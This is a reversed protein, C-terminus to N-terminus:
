SVSEWHQILIGMIFRIQWLFKTVVERKFLQIQKRLIKNFIKGNQMETWTPRCNESIKNQKNKVGKPNQSLTESLQVPLRSKWLGPLCQVQPQETKVEWAAPINETRQLDKHSKLNLHHQGKSVLHFTKKDGKIEQFLHYCQLMIQYVKFDQSSLKKM